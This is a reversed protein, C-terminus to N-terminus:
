ASLVAIPQSRRQGNVTGVAVATKNGEGDAIWKIPGDPLEGRPVSLWELRDCISTELKPVGGHQFTFNGGYEKPITDFDLLASLAPLV